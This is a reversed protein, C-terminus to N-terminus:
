NGLFVWDAEIIVNQLLRDNLVFCLVFSVCFSTKAVVNVQGRLVSVALDATDQHEHLVLKELRESIVPRGVRQLRREPVM